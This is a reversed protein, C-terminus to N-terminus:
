SSVGGSTSPGGSVTLTNAGANVTAGSNIQITRVIRAGGLAPSNTTAPIVVDTDTTPVFGGTWNSPRTWDTPSGTPGADAGLWEFNVSDKNSIMWYKTFGTSGETALYSITHGTLEVWNQTANRNTQGHEHPTIGAYPLHHDWIVLNNENSNGNLQDDEYPLRITFLSNAAESNRMIQYMRRVSNSKDVHLGKTGRTAVVTVKTPITGGNFRLQMNANGYTYVTNDGHTFQRTIKGTVDGQGITTATSTMFLTHSSLNNFESTSNVNNVTAYNGYSIVM